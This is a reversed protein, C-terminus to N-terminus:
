VLKRLAEHGFPQCRGIVNSKVHCILHSRDRQIAWVLAVRDTLGHQAFVLLRQRLRVVQAFHTDDDQLPGAIVKASTEVQGGIGM